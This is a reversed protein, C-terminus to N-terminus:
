GQGMRVRVVFPEERLQLFVGDSFWWWERERGFVDLSVLRQYAFGGSRTALGAVVAVVIVHVSAVVFICIDIPEEGGASALPGRALLYAALRNM